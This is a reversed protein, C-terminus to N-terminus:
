REDHCMLKLKRGVLQRYQRREEVMKDSVNRKNGQGYDVGSSTKRNGGVLIPPADSKLDGYSRSYLNHDLQIPSNRPRTWSRQPGKKPDVVHQSNSSSKPPKSTELLFNYQTNAPEVDDSFSSSIDKRQSRPSSPHANVVYQLSPRDYAVGYEDHYDLGASCAEEQVTQALTKYVAKSRNGSNSTAAAKTMTYGRHNAITLLSDTPTWTETLQCPSNRKVEGTSTQERQLTQDSNSMTSCVGAKASIPMTHGQDSAAHTSDRPLTQYQWNPKSTLSLRSEVSSGSGERTHLSPVEFPQLGKESEVDLAKHQAECTLRWQKEFASSATTKSSRNRKHLPRATLNAELPNM